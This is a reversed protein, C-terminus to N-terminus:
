VACSRDPAREFVHTILIVTVQILSAGIAFVSVVAVPVSSVAIVMETRAFSVSISSPIGTDIAFRVCGARPPLTPM